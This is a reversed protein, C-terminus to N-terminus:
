HTVMAEYDIRQRAVSTATSLRSVEIYRDIFAIVEPDLNFEQM